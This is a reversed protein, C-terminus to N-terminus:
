PRVGKARQMPLIIARRVVFPFIHEAEGSRLHSGGFEAFWKNDRDQAYCGSCEKGVLYEEAGPGSGAYGACIGDALVRKQRRGKGREERDRDLGQLISRRRHHNAGDDFRREGFWIPLACTQVGTVKYDRIGDEAQFFFFFFM